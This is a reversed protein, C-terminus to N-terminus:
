RGGKALVADLKDFCGNWGGQHSDRAERGDFGEHRLTLETKDGVARFTVTVVTERGPKGNEGLWAWTYVLKKEPVIERFVGVVAMANGDKHRMDIRYSGGPNVNSSTMKGSWDGPGLWKSTEELDAWARWVRAVPADFIRTITLVTDASEVAADAM